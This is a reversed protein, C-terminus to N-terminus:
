ALATQGIKKLSRILGAVGGGVAMLWGIPYPLILVGWWMSRGTHGGIGGVSSLEFLAAVGVCILVFVSTWYVVARHGKEGLYQGLAILGSGPLILVSGELPDLTGLMMAICGAVRLM